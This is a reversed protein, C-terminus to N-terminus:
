YAPYLCDDESTTVLKQEEGQENTYYWGDTKLTYQNEM